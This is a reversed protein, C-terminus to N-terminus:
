HPMDVAVRLWHFYRGPVDIGQTNAEFLYDFPEEALVSRYDGKADLVTLSHGSCCRAVRPESTIVGRIQHGERLLIDGCEMLLTDAGILFCSFQPHTM